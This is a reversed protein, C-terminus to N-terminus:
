PLEFGCKVCFKATPKNERECRPCTKTPQVSPVQTEVTEGKGISPARMPKSTPSSVETELWRRLKETYEKRLEMYAVDGIEKRERLEELRALYKAHRRLQDRAESPMELLAPSRSDIQTPASTGTPEVAKPKPGGSCAWSHGPGM